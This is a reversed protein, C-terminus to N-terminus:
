INLNVIKNVRVIRGKREVAFGKIVEGVRGSLEEIISPTCKHIEDGISERLAITEKNDSLISMTREIGYKVFTVENLRINGIKWLFKFDIKSKEIEFSNKM